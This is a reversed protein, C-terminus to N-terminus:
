VASCSLFDLISIGDLLNSTNNFLNDSELCSLLNMTKEAVRFNCYPREETRDKGSSNLECVCLNILILRLM